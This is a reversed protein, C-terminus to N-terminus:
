ALASTLARRCLTCFPAPHLKPSQATGVRRRMLCDRAPRLIQTRYGGGGEHPEVEPSSFPTVPLSLDPRSPDQPHPVPLPPAKRHAATYENWWYFAPSAAQTRDPLTALNPATPLM